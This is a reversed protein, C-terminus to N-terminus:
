CSPWRDLGGGLLLADEGLLLSFEGLSERFAASCLRASASL